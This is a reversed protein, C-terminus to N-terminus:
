KEELRQKAEALAKEVQDPATGGPVNRAKLSSM